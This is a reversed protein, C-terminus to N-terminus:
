DDSSRFANPIPMGKLDTEYSVTISHGTQEARRGRHEHANPADFVRVALRCRGHADAHFWRRRHRDDTLLDSAHDVTGLHHSASHFNCEM